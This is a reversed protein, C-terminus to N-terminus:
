VENDCLLLHPGSEFAAICDKSQAIGDKARLRCLRAPGM